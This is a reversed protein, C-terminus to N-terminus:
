KRGRMEADVGSQGIKTSRWAVQNGSRTATKFGSGSMPTCVKAAPLTGVNKSYPDNGVPAQSSNKMGDSPQRETAAAFTLGGGLKTAEEISEKSLMPPPTGTNLKANGSTENYIEKRSKLDSM